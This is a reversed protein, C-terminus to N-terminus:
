FTREPPSKSLLRAPVSLRIGAQAPNHSEVYVRTRAKKVVRLPNYREGDPGSLWVDQGVRFNAATLLRAGSTDVGLFRALAAESPTVRSLDMSMERCAQHLANRVRDAEGSSHIRDLIRYFGDNHVSNSHRWDLLVQVLHGFEHVVTHAVLNLMNLESGFYGRKHIEKASLWRCMQDPNSKSVVMKLGYTITMDANTTMDSRHSHYTKLGPGVRTSLSAKPNRKLAWERRPEWLMKETLHCMQRAIFRHDM